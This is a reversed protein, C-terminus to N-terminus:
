FHGCGELQLSPEFAGSRLALFVLLALRFYASYFTCDFLSLFRSIYSHLLDTTAIEPPHSNSQAHKFDLSFAKFQAVTKIQPLQVWSTSQNVYKSHSNLTTNLIYCLLCSHLTLNHEKYFTEHGLGQDEQIIRSFCIQKFRTRQSSVLAWLHQKHQSFSSPPTRGLSCLGM